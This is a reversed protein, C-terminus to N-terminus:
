SSALEFDRTIYERIRQLRSDDLPMDALLELLREKRALGLRIVERNFDLDRERAAAYKSLLLDHLELCWGKAGGTNENSVPVLREEWGRPLIATERGVGHAYYGFTQHFPSLEGISGDILDALEPINKPFVDAEVSRLLGEPADPFQGLIAQSGLIVIEMDGTISSAARIIHELHSRRM